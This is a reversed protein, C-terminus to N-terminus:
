RENSRRRVVCLICIPLRYLRCPDISSPYLEHSHFYTKTTSTQKEQTDKQSVCLSVITQLRKWLRFEPWHFTVVHHLITDLHVPVFVCSLSTFPPHLSFLYKRAVTSAMKRKMAPGQTKLPCPISAYHISALIAKSM